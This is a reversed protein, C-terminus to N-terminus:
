IGECRPGTEPRQGRGSHRAVARECRASTDRRQQPGFGGREEYDWGLFAIRHSGALLTTLPLDIQSAYAFSSMSLWVLSLACLRWRLAMPLRRTNSGVPVPVLLTRTLAARRM